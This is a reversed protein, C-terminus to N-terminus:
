GFPSKIQQMYQYYMPNGWLADNGSSWTDYADMYNQWDQGFQSFFQQQPSVAQAMAQPFMPIQPTGFAQNPKNIVPATKPEFLNRNFSTALSTPFQATSTVPKYATGSQNVDTIIM